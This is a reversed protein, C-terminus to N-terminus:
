LCNLEGLFANVVLNRDFEREVKERGRLGMNKKEEYPLAIFRRIADELSKADRARCAIGSVGDDFTERCGPVDTAIVPRAAAASELLANAMGEHYSAHVTAHSTEMYSHVDDVQGVHEVIGDEIARGVAQEFDGDIFGLLRFTVQPFDAKIARAACLLEETGKDRMLRGIVLFTYRDNEVTPYPFPAHKQLNVGSGPLLAINEGVIKRAQMFEMNTRNQFFIKKNKRIGFKYLFLILKQKLGGNEVSIGLGTVTSVCPVRCLRAAISGYVNSKVTYTLVLDPRTKRIIRRYNLLLKLDKFPNMGHRDVATDICECGMDTLLEKATEFPLSVVVRHGEALLREVLEMRLCILGKEHNVLLLVTKKM